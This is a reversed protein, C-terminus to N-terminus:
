KFFPMKEVQNEIGQINTQYLDFISYNRKLYNSLEQNITLKHNEACIVGLYPPYTLDEIEEGTGIFGIRNFNFGRIKHNNKLYLPAIGILTLKSKPNLKSFTLIKLNNEFCIYKKFFVDIWIKNWKFTYAISKFEIDHFLTEWVSELGKFESLSCYEKIIIKNPLSDKSM